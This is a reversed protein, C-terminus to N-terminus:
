NSTLAQFPEQQDVNKNVDKPAPPLGTKVEYYGIKRAGNEMDVLGRLPKCLDPSAGSRWLDDYTREFEQRKWKDMEDGPRVNCFSPWGGMLRITANTIPDDFNLSRYSGHTKIAIKAAYFALTSRAAGIKIGCFTRLEAATPMFQCETIARNVAGEVDLPPINSLAASYAALMTEDAEVRFASALKLINLTDSELKALDVM